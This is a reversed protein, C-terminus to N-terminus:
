NEISLARRAKTFVEPEDVGIQMLVAHAPDVRCFEAVEILAAQLDKELYSFVRDVTNNCLLAVWVQVVPASPADPDIGSGEAFARTLDPATVKAAKRPDM